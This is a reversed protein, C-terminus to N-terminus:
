TSVEIGNVVERSPSGDQRMHILEVEFGADRLAEAERQLQLEYYRTQRVIAARPRGDQRKRFSFAVSPYYTAAVTTAGQSDERCSRARGGRRPRTGTDGASPSP